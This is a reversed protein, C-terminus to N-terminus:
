RFQRFLERTKRSFGAWDMKALDLTLMVQVGRPRKVTEPEPYRQETIVARGGPTPYYEPIPPIGTVTGATIGIGKFLRVKINGGTLAIERAGPNFGWLLEVDVGIPLIDPHKERLKEMIKEATLGVKLQYPYGRAEGGEAKKYSFEELPMYPILKFPTALNVDELLERGSEDTLLAAGVMGLTGAGWAALVAKDAAPLEDWRSEAFDEVKDLVLKKFKPNHTELKEWVLKLGDTIVKTTKEEEEEAKTESEVLTSAPQRQLVSGAGAQQVVHTLEHALLQRGHSSLPAYQDLGLVIHNGLTFAQANVARALRAAQSDTHIRVHSFDCDFCTEFFARDSKPLPEGGGRLAQIDSELGPTVPSTHSKAQKAQLLEEEEEVQRQVLPAPTIEEALPKPQVPEEEEEAQRQVQPRAMRMVQEAVRDAEQEYKDNPQGITLKAQIPLGGQCRPCSGGCGCTPKRRVYSDYIPSVSSNISFHSPANTNEIRKTSSPDLSSKTIAAKM